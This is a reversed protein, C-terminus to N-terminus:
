PTDQENLRRELQEVRIELAHLKERTKALVQAQVDFEERTVMDLRGLQFQLIEKIKQDIDEGLQRVGEPLANHIQQTLEEIKKANLM